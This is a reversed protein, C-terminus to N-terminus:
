LSFSLNLGLVFDVFGDFEDEGIPFRIYADLKASDFSYSGMIGLDHLTRDGFSLDEETVFLLGMLGGGISFNDTGYLVQGYYNLFLETKRDFVGNGDDTPILVDPGGGARVILGTESQHRYKLNSSLSFTEPMYIGLNYNEILIGTVIGSGDDPATLIRLGLDINLGPSLDHFEFGLYVNGIDTESIGGEESLHSIPLSAKMSVANGVFARGYLTLASTPFEIFDLDDFSPIMLEVGVASRRDGEDVWVSQGMCTSNLAFVLTILALLLQYQYTLKKM